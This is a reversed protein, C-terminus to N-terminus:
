SSVEGRMSIAVPSFASDPRFSSRCVNIAGEDSNTMNMGLIFRDITKANTVGLASLGRM